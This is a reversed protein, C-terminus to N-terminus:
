RYWLRGAHSMVTIPKLRPPHKNLTVDTHSAPRLTARLRFHRRKGAGRGCGTLMTESHLVFVFKAAGTQLRGSQDQNAKYGAGYIEQQPTVPNAGAVQQRCVAIRM